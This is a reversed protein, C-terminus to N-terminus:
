NCNLQNKTWNMRDMGIQFDIPEIEESGTYQDIGSRNVLRDSQLLRSKLM